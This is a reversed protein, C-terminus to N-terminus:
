NAGALVFLFYASQMNFSLILKVLLYNLPLTTRLNRTNRQSWWIACNKEGASHVSRRHGKASNNERMLLSLMQTDWNPLYDTCMCGPLCFLFTLFRHKASLSHKILLACESGSIYQPLQHNFQAMLQLPGPHFYSTRGPHCDVKLLHIALRQVAVYKVHFEVNLTLKIVQCSITEGNKM